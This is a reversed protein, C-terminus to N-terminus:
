ETYETDSVEEFQIGTTEALTRLRRVASDNPRLYTPLESVVAVRHKTIDFTDGYKQVIIGDKKSVKIVKLPVQLAIFIKDFALKVSNMYEGDHGAAKIEEPKFVSIYGVKLDLMSALNSVVLDDYKGRRELKGEKDETEETKRKRIYQEIPAVIM